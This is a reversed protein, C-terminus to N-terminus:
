PPLQKIQPLGRMRRIHNSLRLLEFSEWPYMSYGDDHRIYAGGKLGNEHPFMSWFMTGKINPDKEMEYLNNENWHSDYEGVIFPKGVAAASAAMKHMSAFDPGYFHRSFVDTTSINFNDSQGLSEDCGDLVLHNKDVSKIYATITSIWSKPPVSNDSNRINGLENGTEILFLNPNNKIAVGTYKNVHNLWKSIYDKFDAICGADTWFATKPLGRDRTYDGYSGNDWWYNDSLPCILYIGYKKAMYFSYDITDWANPNLNKGSPRLTDKSGSSHGVTHSRIVNAGMKVAVSFMEEICAHSPYPRDYQLGYGLWYCNFGMPIFKKGNLYFTGKTQNIFGTSPPPVIPPSPSIEAFPNGSIKSMVFFATYGNVKKCDGSTKVSFGTKIYASGTKWNYNVVVVKNDQILNDLLSGIDMSQKITYGFSASDGLVVNDIKAWQWKNPDQQIINDLFKTGIYSGVKFPSVNSNEKVTPTDTNSIDLM